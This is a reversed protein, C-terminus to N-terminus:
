VLSWVVSAGRIMDLGLQADGLSKQNHRGDEYGEVEGAVREADVCEHYLQTILRVLHRQVSEDPLLENLKQVVAVERRSEEEVACARRVESLCELTKHTAAM